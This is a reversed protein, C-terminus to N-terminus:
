PGAGERYPSPLPLLHSFCKFHKIKNVNWIYVSQWFSSVSYHVTWPSSSTSSSGVITMITSRLEDAEKRRQAEEQEDAEKRRESTSIISSRAKITFITALFFIVDCRLTMMSEDLRSTGDYSSSSTEYSESDRHHTLTRTCYFDNHTHELLIVVSHGSFFPVV